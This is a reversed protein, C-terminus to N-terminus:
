RHIYERKTSAGRLAWKCVFTCLVRLPAQTSSPLFDVPALITRYTRDLRTVAETKKADEADKHRMKDELRQLKEGICDRSENM